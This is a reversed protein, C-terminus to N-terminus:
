DPLVWRITSSVTDGTASGSSDRAPTFRARSKMLRCTASDLASSGSSGTVACEKVRGDPGVTLRFRTAGQEESRLAAAPYDENSVYSALDAKARAPAVKKVEAPPPPPPPAPPLIEDVPGPQIYPKPLEYVPTSDFVQRQVPPDVVREPMTVVQRQQPQQVQQKVPEPPVDPPPPPTYVDFVDTRGFITKTVEMKSMALAGIAAGHMLIVVTLATPSKKTQYYAGQTM